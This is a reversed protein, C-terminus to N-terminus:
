QYWIWMVPLFVNWHFQFYVGRYGGHRDLFNIYPAGIGMASAVVGSVLAVPAAGLYASITAVMTGFAAGMWLMDILDLTAYHNLYVRPGWWNYVVGTWGAYTVGLASMMEPSVRYVPAEQGLLNMGNSLAIDEVQLDGAQIRVNAEVLGSSLEQFIDEPVGIAQGSDVDLHLQGDVGLYLHPEMKQIADEYAQKAELNQVWKDGAKPVEPFPNAKDPTPGGEAFAPAAFTLLLAVVLLLHVVRTFSQSYRKM